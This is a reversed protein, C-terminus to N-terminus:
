CHACSLSLSLSIPCCCHPPTSDCDPKILILPHHFKFPYWFALTVIVLSTDNSSAGVYCRRDDDIAYNVRIHNYVLLYFIIYKLKCLTSLSEVYRYHRECFWLYICSYKYRHTHKWVVFVMTMTFWVWTEFAEWVQILHLM